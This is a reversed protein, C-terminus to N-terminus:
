LAPLKTELRASCSPSGAAYNKFPPEASKKQPIMATRALGQATKLRDQPPRPTTKPSRPATGVTRHWRAKPTRHPHTLSLFCCFIKPHDQAARPATKPSRPHDQTPKPGDQPPRPSTKPGGPGRRPHEQPRRPREQAPRLAEGAEEPISKPGGPASWCRDFM